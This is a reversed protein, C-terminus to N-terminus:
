SQGRGYFGRGGPVRKRQGQGGHGMSGGFEHGSCDEECEGECGDPGHGHQFPFPEQLHELAEEEMHELMENAQEQTIRGNEVAEALAEDRLAVFADAITQPDVGQEQAVQAITKGDQLEDLLTQVTMGLEDAAVAVITTGPGRMPLGRGGPRRDRLFPGFGEGLRERIREAQEETLSGEDVAQQLVEERATGVASDYEEVTIGLANAIAGHMRQWLDGAWGRKGSSPEQASIVAVSAVVLAAVVATVGAIKWFKSM